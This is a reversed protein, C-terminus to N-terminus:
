NLRVRRILRGATNGDTALRRRTGTGPRQVDDAHCAFIKEAVQSLYAVLRQLDAPSLDVQAVDENTSVFNLRIWEQNESIQDVVNRLLINLEVIKGSL